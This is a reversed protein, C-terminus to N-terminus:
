HISSYPEIVAANLPKLFDSVSDISKAKSTTQSAPKSFLVLYEQIDSVLLLVKTAPFKLHGRVYFDSLEM